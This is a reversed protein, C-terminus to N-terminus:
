WQAAYCEEGNSPKGTRYENACSPTRRTPFRTHQSKVRGACYRAFVDLLATRESLHEGLDM